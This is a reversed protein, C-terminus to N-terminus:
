SKLDAVSICNKKLEAVKGIAAELTVYATGKSIPKGTLDALKMRLAEYRIPLPEGKACDDWLFVIDTVDTVYGLIDIQTDAPNIESITQM